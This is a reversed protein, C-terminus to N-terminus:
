KKSGQPVQPRNNSDAPGQSTISPELAEWCPYRAAYVSNALLLPEASTACPISRAPTASAFPFLPRCNLLALPASGRPHARGSGASQPIPSSLLLHPNSPVETWVQLLTSTGAPLVGAPTRAEFSCDSATGVLAQRRILARPHTREAVRTPFHLFLSPSPGM